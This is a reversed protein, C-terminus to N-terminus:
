KCVDLLTQEVIPGHVHLALNVIRRAMLLTEALEEAYFSFGKKVFEERSSEKVLASFTGGDNITADSSSQGRGIGARITSPIGQQSSQPQFVMMERFIDRMRNDLLKIVPDQGRMTAVCRSRIMDESSEPLNPNLVRALDIVTDGVGKEFLKQSGVVKNGMAQILSKRCEEVRVDLPDQRFFRDGVGAIASAHLALVSGVVSVKAAMRIARVAGIDLYFVEPLFFLVDANVELGMERPSRFLLNDVWGTKLLVDGRKEKSSVLVEKRLGCTQVVEKLWTELHPTSLLVKDGGSGGIDSRTGGFQIEFERRLFDRGMFNAHITPAVVHGLQFNQIDRFCQEAKRHLFSTSALTWEKQTPPPNEWKLLDAPVNLPQDVKPNTEQQQASQSDENQKNLESSIKMWERTSVSRDESELLVLAEAINNLLQLMKQFLKRKERDNQDNNSLCVQEVWDDNLVSHLDTRNPILSRLQQHIELILPHLAAYNQSSIQQLINEHFARKMTQSIQDTFSRPQQSEESAEQATHNNTTFGEQHLFNQFFLTGSRPRGDITLLSFERPPSLMIRHVLPPTLPIKKSSDNGNANLGHNPSIM